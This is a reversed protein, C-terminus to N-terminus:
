FLIFQIINLEFVTLGSFNEALILWTMSYNLLISWVKGPKYPEIITVTQAPVNLKRNGLDHLNLDGNQIVRAIAPIVEKATKVDTDVLRVTVIISGLFLEYSRLV